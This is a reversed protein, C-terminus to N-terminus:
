LMVTKPEIAAGAELLRVARQQAVVMLLVVLALWLAAIRVARPEAEGLAIAATRHLLAMTALLALAFLLGAAADAGLLAERSRGPLHFLVFVGVPLQLLTAALTLWAGARVMREGAAPEASTNRASALLMLAVGGTAACALLFHLVLTAVQPDVLLEVFRVQGPWDDPRMALVNLGVFLPPFHYVLDSGALLLLSCVGWFRRPHALDAFRSFGLVAALCLAYFALEV